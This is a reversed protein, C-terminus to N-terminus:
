KTHKKRIKEKGNKLTNFISSTSIKTEKALKRISLESNYYLEWMQRDYWHWKKVEKHIMQIKHEFDEDDEVNYEDDAIEACLRDMEQGRVIKFRMQSKHLSSVMNRLTIYVYFTNIEDVDYMIRKPDDVYIYLRVYMEQVIDAAFDGAGLNKAENIWHDHKDALIELLPKTCLNM